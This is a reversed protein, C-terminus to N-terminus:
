QANTINQRTIVADLNQQSKFWEKITGVDFYPVVLDYTLLNMNYPVTCLKCTHYEGKILEQPENRKFPIIPMLEGPCNGQTSDRVIPTSFTVM